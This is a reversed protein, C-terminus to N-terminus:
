RMWSYIEDIFKKPQRLLNKDQKDIGVRLNNYNAPNHMSIDIIEQRHTYDYLLEDSRESVNLPLLESMNLPVAKGYNTYNSNLEHPELSFKKM